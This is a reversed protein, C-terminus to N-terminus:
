PNFPSSQQTKLSAAMQHHHNLLFSHPAHDLLMHQLVLFSQRECRTSGRAISRNLTHHLNTKNTEAEHTTGMQFCKILNFAHFQHGDRVRLLLDQM